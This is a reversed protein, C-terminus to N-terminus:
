LQLSAALLAHMRDDDEEEERASGATGRAHLGYAVPALAAEEGGSYSSPDRVTDLIDRESEQGLMM